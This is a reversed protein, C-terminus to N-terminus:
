FRGIVFGTIVFAMMVVILGVVAYLIANKATQVKGPDGESTAYLIGGIIIIIVAAAGAIFYVTNLVGKVVDDANVEPIGVSSASISGGVSPLTGGGPDPENVEVDETGNVMKRAKECNIQRASPPKSPLESLIYCKKPDFGNFNDGAVERYQEEITRCDYAVTGVKDNILPGQYFCMKKPAASADSSVVINFALVSAPLVLLALIFAKLQSPVGLNKQKVKM